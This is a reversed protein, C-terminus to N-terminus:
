IRDLQCLVVAPTAYMDIDGITVMVTFLIALMPDTPLPSHLRADCEGGLQAQAYVCSSVHVVYEPIDHSVKHSTNLIIDVLM